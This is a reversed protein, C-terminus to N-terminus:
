KSILNFLKNLYQKYKNLVVISIDNMHNLREKYLYIYWKYEPKPLNEVLKKINDKLDNSYLLFQILNYYIYMLYLILPKFEWFSELSEIELNPKKNKEEFFKLIVRQINKENYKKFLDNLYVFQFDDQLYSKIKKNTNCVYNSEDLGDFWELLNKLLVFNNYWNYAWFDFTFLPLYNEKFNESNNLYIIQILFETTKYTLYTYNNDKKEIKDYIINNYLLAMELQNIISNTHIKETWIEVYPHYFKIISLINLM